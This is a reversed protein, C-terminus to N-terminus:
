SRFAKLIFYFANSMLKLAIENFCVFGVNKFPSVGDNLM